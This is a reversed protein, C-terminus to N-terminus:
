LQPGRRRWISLRAATADAAYQDTGTLRRLRPWSPAHGELDGSLMRFAACM